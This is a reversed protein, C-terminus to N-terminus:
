KSKRIQLSITIGSATNTTQYTVTFGDKECAETIKDILEAPFKIM